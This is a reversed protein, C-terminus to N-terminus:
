TNDLTMYYNQPCECLQDSNITMLADKCSSCKTTSGEECILCPSKCSKVCDLQM